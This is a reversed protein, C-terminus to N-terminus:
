LRRYFVLCVGPAPHRVPPVIERAMSDIGPDVRRGTKTAVAVGVGGLPALWAVASLAVFSFGIYRHSFDYQEGNQNRYGGRATRGAVRLSWLCVLRM